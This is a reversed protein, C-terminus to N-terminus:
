EICDMRQDIRRGHVKQLLQSRLDLRELSYEAAVEDDDGLAIQVIWAHNLATVSAAVAGVCLPAVVKVVGKMCHQCALSRAVVLVEARDRVQFLRQSFREYVATSM